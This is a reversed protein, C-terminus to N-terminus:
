PLILGSPSERPGEPGSRELSRFHSFYSDILGFYRRGGTEVQKGVVEVLKELLERRVDSDLQRFGELEPHSEIEGLLYKELPAPASEVVVLLGNQRLVGEIARLADDDTCGAHQRMWTYLRSELNFVQDGGELKSFVRSRGEIYERGSVGARERDRSQQYEEGHLYPCDEPCDIGRLRYTGCCSSCIGGGLAPCSRKGKRKGCHLCKAM